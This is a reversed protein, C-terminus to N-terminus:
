MYGWMSMFHWVAVHLKSVRCVTQSIVV